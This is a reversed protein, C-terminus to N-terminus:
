PRRVNMNLRRKLVRQIGVKDFETLRDEELYYDFRFQNTRVWIIRRDGKRQSPEPLKGKNTEEPFSGWTADDDHQLYINETPRGKADTHAMRDFYQARGGEYLVVLVYKDKDIADFYLPWDTAMASSSAVLLIALLCTKFTNM